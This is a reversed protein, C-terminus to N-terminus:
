LGTVETQSPNNDFDIKCYSHYYEEKDFPYFDKFNEWDREKQKGMHNPVSCPFYVVALNAIYTFTDQM